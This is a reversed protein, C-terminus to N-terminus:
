AKKYKSIGTARTIQPLYTGLLSWPYQIRIILLIISFVPFLPIRPNTEINQTLLQTLFVQM